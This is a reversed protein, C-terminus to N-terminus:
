TRSRAIYDAFENAAHLAIEKEDMAVGDRIEFVLVGDDARMVAHRMGEMAASRRRAKAIAGRLTKYHGRDDGVGDFVIYM